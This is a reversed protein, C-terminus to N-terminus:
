CRDGDKRLTPIPGNGDRRTTQTGADVSSPERGTGLEYRTM